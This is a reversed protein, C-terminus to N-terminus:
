MRFKLSLVRSCSLIGEMVSSVIRAEILFRAQMKLLIMLMQLSIRLMQLSLTEQSSFRTSVGEPIFVAGRTKKKSM